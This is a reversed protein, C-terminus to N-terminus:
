NNCIISDSSYKAIWSLNTMILYTYVFTKCKLILVKPLYKLEIMGFLEVIVNDLPRIRFCVHTPTWNLRFKDTLQLNIWKGGLCLKVFSLSSNRFNAPAFFIFV